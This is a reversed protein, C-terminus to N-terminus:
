QMTMGIGEDEEVDDNPSESQDEQQENYPVLRYLSEGWASIVGYDTSTAGLKQLLREGEDRCNMRNLWTEDFKTDLHVLLYEKFFDSANRCNTAMEYRHLNQSINVIDDLATTGHRAEAQLAAKFTIQAGPSMEAMRRALNNLKRIDEMTTFNESTIQPISSEFDYYVGEELNKMGHRLAVAAMDSDTMPLSIWEATEAIHVDDHPAKDVLLRFAPYTEPTSKPLTIGDYVKPLEFDATVVYTDGIFVGDDAARQM